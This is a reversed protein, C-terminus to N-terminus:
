LTMVFRFIYWLQFPCNTMARDDCPGHGMVRAPAMPTLRGPMASAIAPCFPRAFLVHLTGVAGQGGDDGHSQPRQSSPTAPGHSM